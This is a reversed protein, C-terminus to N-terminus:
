PLINRTKKKFEKGASLEGNTYTGTVGICDASFVITMRKRTLSAATYVTLWCARSSPASESPLSTRTELIFQVSLYIFPHFVLCKIPIRIEGSRFDKYGEM